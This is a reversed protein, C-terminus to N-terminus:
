RWSRTRWRPGSSGYALVRVGAGVLAACVVDPELGDRADCDVRQGDTRVDAGGQEKLVTAAEATDPTTVVLRARLGERLEAVTGQSVLRGRSM